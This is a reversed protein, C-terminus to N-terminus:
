WAITLLFTTNEMAQIPERLNGSFVALEAPGLEAPAGEAQLSLRGALVQIPAGGATAAPNLPTGGQAYVLTVRLPARRAATKAPRGAGAAKVEGSLDQRERDLSYVLGQGALEHTPRISTGTTRHSQMRRHSCYPHWATTHLRCRCVAIAVSSEISSSQVR